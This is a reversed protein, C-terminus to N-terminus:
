QHAQRRRQAAKEKRMKEIYILTIVILDVMHGGLQDDIMLTAPRADHLIGLHMRDYKAVIKPFDGNLYMAPMRSSTGVDWRYEVGDPGTFIRDSTLHGWGGSWLSRRRFFERSDTAMQGWTIKTPRINHFEITGVQSFQPSDPEAVVRDITCTRGIVQFPTVARYVTQGSETCFTSNQTDGTTVHLLM